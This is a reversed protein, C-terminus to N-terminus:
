AGGMKLMTLYYLGAVLVALVGFAFWNKSRQRDHAPGKPMFYEKPKITM